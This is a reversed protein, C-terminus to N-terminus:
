RLPASRLSTGSSERLIISGRLNTVNSARAVCAYANDNSIGGIAMQCFGGGAPIPTPFKCNGSAALETGAEDFIQVQVTQPTSGANYVLCLARDQTFDSYIAASAIQAAHSVGAFGFMCAAVAALIKMVIEKQLSPTAPADGAPLPASM